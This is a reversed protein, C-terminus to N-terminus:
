AATVMIAQHIIDEGIDMSFLYHGPDPPYFGLVYQGTGTRQAIMLSRSSFPTAKDPEQLARQRASATTSIDVFVKAGPPDTPILGTARDFVSINFTIGSAQTVPLGLRDWTLTGFKCGTLGHWWHIFPTATVGDASYLIMSYDTNSAPSGELVTRRVWLCVTDGANLGTFTLGTGLTVPSTFVVGLPAVSGKAIILAEANPAAPDVGIAMSATVQSSFANGLCVTLTAIAAVATFAICRYHTTNTALDAVTLNPFIRYAVPLMPRPQLMKPGISRFGGLNMHGSDSSLLGFNTAGLTAQPNYPAAPNILFPVADYVTCPNVAPLTFPTFAGPTMLPGLLGGPELGAPLGGGGGIGAM